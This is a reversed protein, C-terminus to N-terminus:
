YDEFIDALSANKTGNFEIENLGYHVCFDALFDKQEKSMREIIRGRFYVRYNSLKIWGLEDALKYTNYEDYESNLLGHRKLDECLSVHREFGCAYFVGERTIYGDVLEHVKFDGTELYPLEVKGEIYGYGEDYNENAWRPNENKFREIILEKMKNLKIDININKFDDIMFSFLM